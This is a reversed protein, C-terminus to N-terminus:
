QPGMHWCFDLDSGASCVKDPVWFRPVECIFCYIIHKYAPGICPSLALNCWRMSTQQIWALNTTMEPFVTRGLGTGPLHSRLFLIPSVFNDVLLDNSWIVAPFWIYPSLHTSFTSVRLRLRFWAQFKAALHTRREFSYSVQCYVRQPVFVYPVEMLARNCYRVNWGKHKLGQFLLCM